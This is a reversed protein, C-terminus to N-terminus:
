LGSSQLREFNNGISSGRSFFNPIDNDNFRESPNSILIVNKESSIWFTGRDSKTYQNM